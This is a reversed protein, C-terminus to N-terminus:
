PGPRRRRHRSCSSSKCSSLPLRWCGLWSATACAQVCDRALACCLVAILVLNLASIAARFTPPPRRICGVSHLLTTRAVFGSFAVSRTPALPHMCALLLFLLTNNTHHMVILALLAAPFAPRHLCCATFLSVFCPSTVLASTFYLSLSWRCRGAVAVAVAVLSLLVTVGFWSLSYTADSQRCSSVLVDM